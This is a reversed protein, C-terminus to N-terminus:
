PPLTRVFCHGLWEQLADEDAVADSKLMIMGRM